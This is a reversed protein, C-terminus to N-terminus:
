KAGPSMMKRNMTLAMRNNSVAKTRFEGFKATEDPTLFTGAQAQVREYIGDLLALNKEAESESAM